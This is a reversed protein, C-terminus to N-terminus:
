GKVSGDPEYPISILLEGTGSIFSIAKIRDNFIVKEPKFKGLHNRLFNHVRNILKIDLEM